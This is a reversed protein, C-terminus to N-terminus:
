TLWFFKYERCDDPEDSGDRCDKEGDCKWLASICRDDSIIKRSILLHYESVWSNTDHHCHFLTNLNSLNLRVGNDAASSPPPATQSAPKITPNWCSTNRVRARTLYVAPLSWVCTLAAAMTVEARTPHQWVCVIILFNLFRAWVVEREITIRSTPILSCLYITWNHILVKNGKDQRM